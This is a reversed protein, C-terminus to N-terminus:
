SGQYAMINELQKRPSDNSEDKCEGMSQVGDCEVRRAFIKLSPILCVGQRVRDLIGDIDSLEGM